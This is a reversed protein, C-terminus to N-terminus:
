VFRFIRNNFLKKLKRFSIFQRNQCWKQQSILKKIYNGSFQIIQIFDSLSHIPIIIGDVGIGDATQSRLDRNWQNTGVLRLTAGVDADSEAVAIVQAPQRIDMQTAVFGRDDWAWNVSEFRGGQNVHYQFLKGRFYMPSGDVNIALPVEIDKPLTVTFGDWGTCVDVERTTHFWHGSEMLAQVAQTLKRFVRVEDTTGLIEAAESFIESVFM